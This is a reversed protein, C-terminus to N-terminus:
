IRITFLAITLVTVAATYISVVPHVRKYVQFEIQGTFSLTQSEYNSLFKRMDRQTARFHRIRSVIFRYIRYTTFGSLIGVVSGALIDGPYHVGLYIRSYSVLITWCIMCLSFRGVRVVLSLFTAVAVTNAAHCSPFGYSGGRYGNVIHVLPSIPNDPNSPRLRGVLPRILTASIQDAMAVALGAILGVLLATRWGFRYHLSYLLTVYFPIWVVRTSIWYMFTDFAKNHCSNLLLMLQNDIDTLFDIM